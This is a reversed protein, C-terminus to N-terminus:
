DRSIKERFFDRLASFQVRAAPACLKFAVATSHRGGGGLNACSNITDSIDNMNAEYGNFSVTDRILVILVKTARIGISSCARPKNSTLKMVSILLMFGSRNSCTATKPERLRV